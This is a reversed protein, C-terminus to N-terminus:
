QMGMRDRIASCAIDCMTEVEGTPGNNNKEVLWFLKRRVKDLRSRWESMAEFDSEDEPRRCYYEPRYLFMVLRADQEIEGSWRLDSLSPRKDKNDRKEVDRSLQCLAVVPVDLRKAMEALGRSIDGVEAVKNGKRDNDAKAITLHDVIIAGPEIGQRQWDRIAKRACAEMASTTLGPRTDFLLPWGAMTREAAELAEWQHRELQGRDADFYSPNESKGSFVPANQNFALDCAMRLGLAVKPMEMSFFAVGKGQSALARGLSLGASSKGMAPRGAIIAMEGRRLGGTLRDLETLGTPLEIRGKREQAARVAGGIIADARSWASPSPGTDALDSVAREADIVRESGPKDPDRAAEAIEGAVRILGRRMAADQVARAYEPAHRPAPARDVMDALYRLGGFQDWAPSAKLRDALITPEALRGARVLDTMATWILGHFPEFFDAARVDDPMAENDFLVAGILAQEADLNQPLPSSLGIVGRRWQM